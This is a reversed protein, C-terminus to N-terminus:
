RKSRKFALITPPPLMARARAVLREGEDWAADRDADSMQSNIPLDDESSFDANGEDQEDHREDLVDGGHENEEEADTSGGDSWHLQSGEETREAGWFGRGAQTEAAGLWPEMDADGDMLDLVSLLSTLIAAHMEAREAVAARWDRPDVGFPCGIPRIANM